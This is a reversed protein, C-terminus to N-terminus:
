FKLIIGTVAASIVGIVCLLLPVRLAVRKNYRKEEEGILFTGLPYLYSLLKLVPWMISILCGCIVLWFFFTTSLLGGMSSKNYLEKIAERYSANDLLSLLENREKKTMAGKSTLVGKDYDYHLKSKIHNPFTIEHPWPRIYTSHEPFVQSLSVALLVFVVPLFGWSIASAVVLTKHAFPAITKHPNEPILEKIYERMLSLSDDVWEESGEVEVSINKNSEGLTICISRVPISATSLTVKADSKIDERVRIELTTIRKDFPNEYTTIDNLQVTNESISGPYFVQYCIIYTTGKFRKKLNEELRALKKSDVVFSLHFSEQKKVWTKGNRLM